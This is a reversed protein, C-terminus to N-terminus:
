EETVCEAYSKHSKFRTLHFRGFFSDVLSYVAPIIFLTIMTAFALGFSISVAMPKWDAVAKSTSFIMPLLGGITTVTTLIIPRLRTAGANILSNWRDVGMARERNVFDVLVLSDNVVVGALAVVAVLTTLSFPLGTILLGAIVGIFSFPIVFMVILPQVYSKFQTALVAFIIMIAIGFALGLSQYSKRQEEVVGGFDLQYGSFRQEFNALRGVTGTLKNGLLENMVEDTTRKKTKGNETYFSTDGTITIIRKKDWHDIQALSSELKFDAIDRLDILNGSLTRIRLNKLDELDKIQEEKLRVIIDYEDVGFGRFKSVTSGYSATRVFSSLQAVSLGYMSLKDYKPIIIVEKKGPLFSDEIDVVGTIEGLETKIIDGIYQLRELNDGKVRIEIDKGTPPGSQPVAFKYSYIGPHDDMFNRIDNKIEEHNYNMKDEDVLDIALQANSTSFQRQHNETMAGVSTVIAAIDSKKNMTMIFNEIDSVVENTKDLNTGIPTKLKLVITQPTQKPFFEMKVLRFAIALISLIMLFFLLLMTLLRHRLVRKVMQKYNSILFQMLRSNRKEEKIPKALDAIHSPLIILSEFLSAFLTLSVVIPFVRMFLGMMGKMLLMPLFAAATTTVAAVIPWMIERTGRIAADKPCLGQEMYRHVNELVIIADDVIMGLVLVLAFLSLNNMTVDFYRMLIFTLLFSFPIGWAAFLANRWGIFITLIVFVLVVGFIANSSLTQLSNKVEISGDNRITTELNPVSNKFQDVYERVDKIVNIINGEAKKYVDIRVSPKGDLKALTSREELTDKISAVDQIRTARGNTDMQVVLQKMEEIHDFEGVTRVIFETKGFKVTGGPINMNRARIVNSLDDLTLGLENLKTADGEVWIERERTGRIEAKSVYDLNVIGEQMNEAIERIANGSFDGGLAISCIEAVERMNLRLMFPDEADDPLDTVKDLEAKLDMEAKDIDANPEFEIYITARGEMASSSIFDIDDVDAIEEEIKNLVLEEIESPSVGPYWVIIIFSGFEIAPMEEKPLDRLTFLGMIFVIVMIMNVLPSNNVAFKVISM